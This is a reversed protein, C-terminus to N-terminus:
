WSKGITAKSKGLGGNIDLLTLSGGFGAASGIGIVYNNGIATPAYLFSAGVTFGIDGGINLEYRQGFFVSPHLTELSGSYYLATGGLTASAAGVGAHAGFDEYGFVKGSYIGRTMILAGIEGKFGGGLTAAGNLSATVADPGFIHRFQKTIAAIAIGLKSPTLSYDQNQFDNLLIKFLDKIPGSSSNNSVDEPTQFNNKEITGDAHIDVGQKGNVTVFDLTNGDADYTRVNLDGTSGIVENFAPDVKMGYSDTPAMGDPDIFFIPNNFAYNYPSHRRMMEALPDINM